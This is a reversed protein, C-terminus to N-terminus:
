SGSDSGSLDLSHDTPESGRVQTRARAPSAPRGSGARQRERPGVAVGRDAPTPTAELEVEGRATVSFMVVTRAIWAALYLIATPRTQDSLHQRGETMIVVARASLREAM